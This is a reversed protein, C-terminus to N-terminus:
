MYQPLLTTIQQVATLLTAETAHQKASTPRGPGETGIAPVEVHTNLIPDIIDSELNDRLHEPVSPTPIRVSHIPGDHM